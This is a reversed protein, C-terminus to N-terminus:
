LLSLFRFDTEGALHVTDAIFEYPLSTYKVTYGISSDVGEWFIGLKKHRDVFM